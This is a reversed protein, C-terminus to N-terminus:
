AAWVDDDASQLKGSQYDQFAEYIEEQTTMVFPGHQVIPEGIPKGAFLTFRCGDKSSAVVTDGKGMVLAQEENGQTGPGFDASGENVYVFCTMEDGVDHKFYGGPALTVDLVMAPWRTSVAGEAGSYSGALVRVRCGESEVTTIDKAQVDQYRPKCLKESSPLNVWLQMGWLRGDTDEPMESHIIGRGATMWQVGGDEIVGENGQSDKHRMKGEFMISVTEFGRHPHNPFGKMAERSECKLEDLMLFPDLNRLSATGVTRCIRVGAGEMAKVGQVIKAVPRVDVSRSM